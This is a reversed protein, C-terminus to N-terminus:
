RLERIDAAEYMARKLQVVWKQVSNDTINRRDFYEIFKGSIVTTKM